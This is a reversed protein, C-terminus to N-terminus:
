PAIGSSITGKEAIEEISLKVMGGGLGKGAEDANRLATTALRRVGLGNILETLRTKAQQNEKTKIYMRIRDLEIKISVTYKEKERVIVDFAELAEERLDQYQKHGSLFTNEIHILRMSLDVAAMKGPSNKLVPVIRAFLTEKTFPKIIYGKAGLDRVKVVIDAENHSSVFIVPITCYLPNTALVNLLDLGSMDPMEIDLLILDVLKEQLVRLAKEGSTALALDYHHGLINRFIQLYSAADDVILIVRDQTIRDKDDSLEM